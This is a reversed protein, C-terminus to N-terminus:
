SANYPGPCKHFAQRIAPTHGLFYIVLSTQVSPQKSNKFILPFCKVRAIPRVYRISGMGRKAHHVGIGGPSGVCLLKVRACVSIGSRAFCIFSLIIQIISRASQFAANIKAGIVGCNSACVGRAGIRWYKIQSEWGRLQVKWRM